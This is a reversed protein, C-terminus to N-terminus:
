WTPCRMYFTEMMASPETPRASKWWCLLHSASSFSCPKTPLSVQSQSGARGSVPPCSMLSVSSLKVRTSAHLPWEILIQKYIFPFQIYLDPVQYCERFTAMIHHTCRFSCPPELMRRKGTYILYNIIFSELM